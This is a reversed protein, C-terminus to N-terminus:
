GEVDLGLFTLCGAHCQRYVLALLRQLRGGSSATASIGVPVAGRKISSALLSHWLRREGVMERLLDATHM